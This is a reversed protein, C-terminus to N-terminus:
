GGSMAPLLEVVEGAAPVAALDKSLAGARVVAYYEHGPIGLSALYEALTAGARYPLEIRTRGGAHRVLHAHLVLTLSAAPTGAGAERNGVQGPLEGDSM